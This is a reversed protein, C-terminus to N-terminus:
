GYFQLLFSFEIFDYLNAPPYHFSQHFIEMQKNRLKKTQPFRLPEQFWFLWMMPKKQPVKNLLIDYHHYVAVIFIQVEM